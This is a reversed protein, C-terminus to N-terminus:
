VCKLLSSSSVRITRALSCLVGHIYYLQSVWKAEQEWVDGTGAGEESDCADTAHSGMGGVVASDGAGGGVM